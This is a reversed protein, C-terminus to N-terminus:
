RRSGHELNAVWKARSEPVKRLKKDETEEEFFSDIVDVGLEEAFGRVVGIRVNSENVRVAKNIRDPTGLFALLGAPDIVRRTTASGVYYGDNGLRIAGNAVIDDALYEEVRGKVVRAARIIREVEALADGFPNCRSSM